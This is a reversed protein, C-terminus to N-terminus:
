LTLIEQATFRLVETRAATSADISTEKIPASVNTSTKKESGGYALGIIVIAAILLIVGKQQSGLHEKQLAVVRRQALPDPQEFIRAIVDDASAPVWASGGARYVLDSEVIKGEEIARKIRHGNM